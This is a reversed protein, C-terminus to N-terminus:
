GLCHRIGYHVAYILGIGFLVSGLVIQSGTHLGMSFARLCM